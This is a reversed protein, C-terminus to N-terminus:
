KCDSPGYRFSLTISVIWEGADRLFLGVDLRSLHDTWVATMDVVDAIANGVHKQCFVFNLDYVM